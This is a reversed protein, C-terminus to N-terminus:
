VEPIQSGRHTAGVSATSGRRTVGAVASATDHTAGAVVTARALGTEEAVDAALPGLPTAPAVVEPFLRIPIKLRELLDLLRARRDPVCTDSSGHRADHALPPPPSGPSSRASAPGQSESSPPANGQWPHQGAACGHAVASGDAGTVTVGVNQHSDNGAIGVVLTAFLLPRAAFQARDVAQLAGAQVAHGEGLYLGFVLVACAFSAALSITSADSRMAPSTQM